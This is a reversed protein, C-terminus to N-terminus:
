EIIQEVAISALAALGPLQVPSHGTGSKHVNISSISPIKCSGSSSRREPDLSPLIRSDERSLPPPRPHTTTTSFVDLSAPSTRYFSMTM